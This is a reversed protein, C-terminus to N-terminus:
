DFVKRALTTKGQGGMAVVSVVTLEDRGEVLWDVLKDRPKEFGVVDAEKM